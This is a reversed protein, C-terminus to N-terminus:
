GELCAVAAQRSHRPMLPYAPSNTSNAAGASSTRNISRRLAQFDIPFTASESVINPIRLCPLYLMNHLLSCSERNIKLSETWDGPAIEEFSVSVAEDGYGLSTMVASTISDALQQKQKNSKGPWLKVIVHPM